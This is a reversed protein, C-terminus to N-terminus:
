AAESHSPAFRETIEPELGIDLILMVEDGAKIV